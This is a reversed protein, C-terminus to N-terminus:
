RTWVRTSLYSYHLASKWTGNREITNRKLGKLISLDIDGTDLQILIDGETVTGGKEFNSTVVRGGNEGRILMEQEALVIVTGPVANVATGRHTESVVVTPVSKTLLFAGIAVLIALPILSKFVNVIKM